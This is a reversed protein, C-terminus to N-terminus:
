RGEECGEEEDGGAANSGEDRGRRRRRGLRTLTSKEDELCEDTAKKTKTKIQAKRGKRVCARDNVQCKETECERVIYEFKRKNWKKAM